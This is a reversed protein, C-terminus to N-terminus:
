EQQGRNDKEIAQADGLGIRRNGIKEKLKMRATVYLISLNGTILKTHVDDLM